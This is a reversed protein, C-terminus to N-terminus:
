DPKVKRMSPHSRGDAIVLDQPGIGGIQAATSVNGGWDNFVTMPGSLASVDLIRWSKNTSITPSRNGHEDIAWWNAANGNLSVCIM